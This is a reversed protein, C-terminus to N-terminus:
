FKLCTVLELIFKQRYQSLPDIHSWKTKMTAKPLLGERIEACKDKSPDLPLRAYNFMNRNLNRIEAM